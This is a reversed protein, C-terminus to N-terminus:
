PADEEIKRIATACDPWRTLLEPIKREAEHSASTGFHKALLELYIQIDGIEQVISGAYNGMSEGARWQKKMLNCLEGVEGALALALFRGDEMSYPAWRKVVTKHIIDIKDKWTLSM